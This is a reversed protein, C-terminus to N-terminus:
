LIFNFFQSSRLYIVTGYTRWSLWPSWINQLYHDNMMMNITHTLTTHSNILNIKNHSQCFHGQFLNIDVKAESGKSFQVVLKVTRPVFLNLSIPWSVYNLPLLTVQIRTDNTYNLNDPKKSQILPVTAPQHSYFTSQHSTKLIHKKLSCTYNLKVLNYDNSQTFAGHAIFLRLLTILICM